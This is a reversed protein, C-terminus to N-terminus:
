GEEGGFCRCAEGEPDGVHFVFPEEPAAELTGGGALHWRSPSGLAIEFCGHGCRTSVDVEVASTM